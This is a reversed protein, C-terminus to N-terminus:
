FKAIVLSRDPSVTQIGAQKVKLSPLLSLFTDYFFCLTVEGQFEYPCKHVHERKWFLSHIEDELNATVACLCEHPLHEYSGRFLKPM